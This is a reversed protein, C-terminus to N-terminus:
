TENIVEGQINQSNSADLFSGLLAYSFIGMIFEKIHAIKVVKGQAASKREQTSPTRLSHSIHM